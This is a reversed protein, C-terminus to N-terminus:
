RKVWFYGERIKRQNKVQCFCHICLSGLLQSMKKLLLGMIRGGDVRCEVEGVVFYYLIFRVRMCM